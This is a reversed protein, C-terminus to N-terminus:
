LHARVSQHKGETEAELALGLEEAIIVAAKEGVVIATSYTNAAVNGPCISLDAVKLGEVGYVNLREDVVGEKERAKMACTGLSHWTTSVSARIWEELAREDEEGYVLEPEDVPVPGDRARPLLPSSPAFSPHIGTGLVEGRYSPMRRAYERSLKYGWKHLGLDEPSDLFGPHLDLPADVDEASTIHVRGTSAPHMLFWGIAYAKLDDAPQTLKMRDGLFLAVAGFWLVPKDPAPAYYSSWRKRFSEGIVDLDKANPRLKIGADQGNQALLGSGDRHWPESWKQIEAEDGRAIGDLTHADEAAKYYAFVVQHDQYNEGVGPLEVVPERIGVRALVDRAGIGSRELIAPTGLSGASLVVLRRAHAILPKASSQSQSQSQSAPVYEVGTARTGTVLVRKVHHGSLITLNPLDRNYIYHHPIDSRKGTKSDIWKQWRGYRNCEWLGNVDETRGRTKDYARAVDLFDRGIETFLGGYSVKLPGAYGHTPLPKHPEIEYTECKRLLPLLDSSGWGQNGHVNEWDDYDSAAARTYVAFNVSSGGGVCRGCPVVPARGGLAESPRAVHFRITSSDPRLHYLYRAPQTHLPDDKTPPGSEIVLIKLPPTPPSSTSSPSSPPSASASASALRSALVLGATGGGAIIIDYTQESM